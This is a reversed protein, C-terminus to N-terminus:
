NKVSATIVPETKIKHLYLTKIEGSQTIPTLMLIDRAYSRFSGIYSVDPHGDMVLDLNFDLQSFQEFKVITFTMDNVDVHTIEEKQYVHIIQEENEENQWHGLISEMNAEYHEKESDSYFLQGQQSCSMVTFLFLVLIIYLPKMTFNTVFGYGFAM